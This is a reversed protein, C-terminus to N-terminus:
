GGVHYLFISYGAKADPRRGKFYAFYNQYAPSFFYGLLSNVSIAYWGPQPKLQLEKEWEPAWPAAEREVKGAPIYHEPIDLGFYYLKIKGIRHEEVWRALEPLNQGWDINSDALYRWGNQPGGAWENFYSIGQPYIGLSAVGLWVVCAATAAKAARRRGWRALGFGAGLIVFPVAPLVHRFGIHIHSPLALAMLLAPPGWVFADEAGAQGRAARLASAGMGALALLQLAIPFKVAWALPFYLPAAYQIKHGLMYAPFGEKRNALGIYRLGRIFQPPWPLKGLIEATRVEGRSWGETKMEDLENKSIARAQFQYAALLGAYVAGLVMAALALRRRASGGRWLVVAVAVPILALLNFKALVAALLGLTMVIVRRLDPRRWYRWATYSFLLCGCAAAVDSKVLPGHGLLTPELATCAALLLAIREGFLERGWSWVLWVITAPFILFCLRMLFILRHKQEAGSAELIERGIDFSGQIRWGFTDQRLPAHLARPVWGSVIRMLPPTDSPSLVDQGRWYMYGAALHSPEDFTVGLRWAEWGLLLVYLALLLAMGRSCPTWAGPGSRTEERTLDM